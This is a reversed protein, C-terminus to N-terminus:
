DGSTVKDVLERAKSARMWSKERMVACLFGGAALLYTLGCAFLLLAKARLTWPLYLLVAIHILLFGTLLVGLALLLLMGALVALRAGKVGRVYLLVAQIRVLKTTWLAEIM